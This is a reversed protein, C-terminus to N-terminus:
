DGEQGTELLPTPDARGTEMCSLEHPSIGRRKAEESLTRGELRRRERHAEGLMLWESQQKTIEKSGRCLYCEIEIPRCGTGNMPCGIGRSVGEGKCHPCIM